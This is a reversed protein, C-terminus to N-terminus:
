LVLFFRAFQRWFFSCIIILLIQVLLFQHVLHFFDCVIVIIVIIIIPFHQIELLFYIFISANSLYGSLDVTMLCNHWKGYTGENMMM